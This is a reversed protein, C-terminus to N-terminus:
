SKTKLNNYDFLNSNIHQLFKPEKQKSRFLFSQLPANSFDIQVGKIKDGSESKAILKPNEESNMFTKIGTSKESNPPFFTFNQSCFKSSFAFESASFMINKNLPTCFIPSFPNKYLNPLTSQDIGIPKFASVTNQTSEDKTPTIPNAKM